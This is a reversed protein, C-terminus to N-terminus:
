IGVIATYLASVVPNIVFGILGATVLFFLIFFGFPFLRSLMERVKEPLLSMVINGGDLPPIPILNIVALVLNIMVGSKGMYVIALAWPFGHQLLLVGSKAIAAWLLAMVLNALPGAFAILAIDLRPRRLNRLNIPVPKAWGFVMGGLFLLLMPVIITGILDIHCLPNLSLRGFIRATNDGLFKAAFGHAAEHITVAFVVPLFWVAFVQIKTLEIM